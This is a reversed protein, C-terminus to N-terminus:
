IRLVTEAGLHSQYHLYIWAELQKRDNFDVSTLDASQTGLVANFDAHALQNNQLWAKIVEADTPIPDLIYETLYRQDRVFIADIIARHSLTHHFSWVLWEQPTRPVESVVALM